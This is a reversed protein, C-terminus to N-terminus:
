CAKEQDSKLILSNYGAHDVDRVMCGVAYKDFGKKSVMCALVWGTDCGM